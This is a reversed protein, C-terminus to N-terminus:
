VRWIFRHMAHAFSMKYFLYCGKNYMRGSLSCIVNVNEHIYLVVSRVTLNHLSSCASFQLLHINAPTPRGAESHATAVSVSIRM